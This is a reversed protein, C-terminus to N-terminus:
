PRGTHRPPDGVADELTAATRLVRDLGTLELVRSVPGEDVVLVLSGRFARAKRQAAVLVGLGSSDLFGVDRLDLVLHVCGDVVLEHLTRRLGASSAVDLDGSAEVVWRDGVPRVTLAAPAPRSV